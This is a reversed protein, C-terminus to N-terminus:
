LKPTNQNEFLFNLLKIWLFNFEKAKDEEISNIFYNHVYEQESM